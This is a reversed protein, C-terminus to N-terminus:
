GGPKMFVKAPKLLKGDATAVAALEGARDLIAVAGHLEAPCPLKQGQCLRARLDDDLTLAPLEAVAHKLPLLRSRATAPDADLTLAASETFPGVRTRRLTQVLAGCGLRAGLDRALSRIYTGRGCDVVLDLNPYDYALVDISYVHVHRAALDVEAGQRALKYARRGAVKAASYAPPTQEIEGIFEELAAAIEALLPPRADAVETVAGDADDSDSTAGLRFRSRYTKPMAQVYEAVRTANGVCLVLIGTALPDLTGTHGLRARRPFWGKSRDVADRSTIGGPKDLVLLGSLEEPRSKSEAV